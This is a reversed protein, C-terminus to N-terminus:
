DASVSQTGEAKVLQGIFSGVVVKSRVQVPIRYHDDTLWVHIKANKSEKFVGGIHKMEPELCLTEYTKGNKLTITERKIIRVRGIVNKKGDTVPRELQEDANFVSFRTFYLASLPDFSGAKLALPQDKEGFNTYHAMSNDWDFRIFEDKVHRGERQKKRYEMSKTMNIDAYADIRDRVKYFLDVFRNSTVTLVFHYVPIGDIFKIPQVELEAQGAPVGEWHLTYTLREGPAFPLEASFAPLPIVVAFFLLIWSM